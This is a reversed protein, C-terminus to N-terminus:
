YSCSSSQAYGAKEAELSSSFYIKNSNDQIRNAAKCSSPYYVTGNKSAVFHATEGGGSKFPVSFVGKELKIEPKLSRIYSMRLVGAITVAGLVMVAVIFIERERSKIKEKLHTLMYPNYCNHAIGGNPPISM